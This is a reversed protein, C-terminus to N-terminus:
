LQRSTRVRFVDEAFLAKERGGSMMVLLEGHAGLEKVIGVEQNEMGGWEVATGRKFLAHQYYTEEVPGTGKENLLAFWTKLRQLVEPLVQDIQLEHSTLESLSVGTAPAKRLNLGIGVVTLGYPGSVHECLVGALKKVGVWLDNPWKISVEAKPAWVSVAERLAVTTTLPLWTLIAPNEVRTLYSLYLNGEESIWERGLRGRGATQSRSCIWTGEPLGSQAFQKAIANTSDCSDLIQNPAVTNTESNMTSSM